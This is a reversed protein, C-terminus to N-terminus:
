PVRWGKGVKLAALAIRASSTVPLGTGETMLVRVLGVIHLAIFLCHSDGQM